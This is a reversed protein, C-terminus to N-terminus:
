PNGWNTHTKLYSEVQALTPTASAGHGTTSLSGCIVGYRLSLELPDGRLQSFMFGANFCDGAGTTDLVEVPLAPTSLQCGPDPAPGRQRQAAPWGGPESSRPRRPTELTASSAQCDM